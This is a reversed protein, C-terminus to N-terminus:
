GAHIGGTSSDFVRCAHDIAGTAATEGMGCGGLAHVTILRRGLMESWLPNKVLVGDIAHAGQALREQVRAFTAESSLGPWHIRLRDDELVMRGAGDDHAMVLIVESRDVAGHYGGLLLSEAERERACCSSPRASRVPAWSFATLPSSVKPRM